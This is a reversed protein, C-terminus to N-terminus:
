STPSSAPTTDDSTQESSDSPTDTVTELEFDIECLLAEYAEGKSGIEDVLGNKIADIGLFVQGQLATTPIVAEQLSRMGVVFDTFLGFIRDVHAQLEARHEPSLAPFLHIGKFNGGTNIVPTSAVGEKEWKASEDIWPLYVGISGIEASDTCIIKSAGAALWYAASCVQSDSFVYVPILQATEAITDALEPTGTIGGGPSDICLLIGKAGQAVLAAIEAQVDRTDTNGCTREIPSLGQAIVGKVHVHGIGNVDLTAQERQVFYPNEDGEALQPTVEFHGANAMKTEFLRIISAHASPTILWPKSYILEALHRFRM